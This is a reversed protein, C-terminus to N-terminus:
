THEQWHLPQPVVLLLILALVTYENFVETHDVLYTEIINFPRQSSIVGCFSIIISNNITM